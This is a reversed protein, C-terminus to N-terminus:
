RGPDTTGDRWRQHIVASKGAALEGARPLSDCRYCGFPREVPEACAHYALTGTLGRSQTFPLGRYDADRDNRM